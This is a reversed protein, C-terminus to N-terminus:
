RTVGFLRDANAFFERTGRNLPSVMPGYATLFAQLPLHEVSGDSFLFNYGDSGNQAWASHYSNPDASNNGPAVKDSLITVRTTWVEPKGNYPSITILNLKELRCFVDAGASLGPQELVRMSYNTKIHSTATAKVWTDTGQSPNLPDYIPCLLASSGHYPGLEGRMFGCGVLLGLRVWPYITGIVNGGSDRLTEPYRAYYDGGIKTDNAAYMLQRFEGQYMQLGLGIQRMNSACQINLAAMRAKSLAPLLIAILVSIIGIVVLLEVLTFAALKSHGPKRM